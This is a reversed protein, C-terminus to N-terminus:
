PSNFIYIQTYMYVYIYIYTYALSDFQKMNLKMTPTLNKYQICMTITWNIYISREVEHSKTITVKIYEYLNHPISM